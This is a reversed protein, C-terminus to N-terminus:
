PITLIIEKRPYTIVHVGSDTSFTYVMFGGNIAQVNDQSEEGQTHQYTYSQLLQYVKSDLETSWETSDFSYTAHDSSRATLRPEPLPEDDRIARGQEFTAQVVQADTIRRVEQSARARAFEEADRKPAASDCSFLVLM